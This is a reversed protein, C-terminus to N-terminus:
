EESKLSMLSDRIVNMSNLSTAFGSFIAALSCVEYIEDESLGCLYSLRSQYATQPQMNGNSITIALVVLLKEKLKLHSNKSYNEGYLRSVLEKTLSSSGQCMGEIVLLADPDKQQLWNLGEQFIEENVM